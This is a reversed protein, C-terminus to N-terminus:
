LSYPPLSDHNLWKRDCFFFSFFSFTSSSVTKKKDTNSLISRNCSSNSGHSSRIQITTGTGQVQATYTVSSSAAHTTGYADTGTVTLTCTYNGTSADLPLDLELTITGSGGFFTQPFNTDSKIYQAGNETLQVGTITLSTGSFTFSVDITQNTGLTVTGFSAQSIAVEVTSSGTGGGGGGPPTTQTWDVIIQDNDTYTGTLFNTTSDYVATM